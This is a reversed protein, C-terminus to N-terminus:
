ILCRGSLRTGFGSNSTRVCWIGRVSCLSSCFALRLVFLVSMLSLLFHLMHSHFLPNAKQVNPIFFKMRTKIPLCMSDALYKKFRSRQAREWEHAEFGNHTESRRRSWYFCLQFPLERCELFVRGTTDILWVRRTMRRYHYLKLKRKESCSFHNM